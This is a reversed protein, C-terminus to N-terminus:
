PEEIDHQMITMEEDLPAHVLCIGFTGMLEKWSVQADGLYKYSTHASIWAGEANEPPQTVREDRPSLYVRAREQATAKAFVDAPLFEITAGLDAPLMGDHAKAYAEIAARIFRLDRMAHAFDPLPSGTRASEIVQKTYRLIWDYYGR